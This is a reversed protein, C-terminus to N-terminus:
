RMGQAPSQGDVVALLEGAELFDLLL